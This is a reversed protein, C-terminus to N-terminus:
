EVLPNSITLLIEEIESLRQHIADLDHEPICVEHIEKIIELAKKVRSKNM